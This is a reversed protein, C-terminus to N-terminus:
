VDMSLHWRIGRERCAELVAKVQALEAEAMEQLPIVGPHQRLHALMADVTPLGEAADFWLEGLTDEPVDEFEEDGLLDRPDDGFFDVLARLGLPKCVTKELYDDAKAPAKGGFDTPDFGDIDAETTLYYAVGM